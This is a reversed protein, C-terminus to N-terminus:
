LLHVPWKRCSGGWPADLSPWYWGTSLVPLMSPTSFCGLLKASAAVCPCVSVVFLVFLLWTKASAAMCVLQWRSGASAATMCGRQLWEGAWGWGALTGEQAWRGSGVLGDSRNVQQCRTCLYSSPRLQCLFSMSPHSPASCRPSSPDLRPLALSRLPSPAPLCLAPLPLPEMRASRASPLFPIATAPLAPTPSFSLPPLPITTARGPCLPASSNSAIRLLRPHPPSIAAPDLVRLFPSSSSLPLWAPQTRLHSHLLPSPIPAPHLCVRPVSRAPAAPPRSRLRRHAPSGPRGGPAAAM